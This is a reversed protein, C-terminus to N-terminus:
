QRDWHRKMQFIPISIPICLWFNPVARPYLTGYAVAMLCLTPMIMSIMRCDSAMDLNMHRQTSALDVLFASGNNRGGGGVGGARRGNGTGIADISNDIVVLYVNNAETDFVQKFEDDVTAPTNDLYHSDPYQGDLRHVVPDGQADIEFRFTKSGHGHAQMQEAYFTQIQRIAVKM